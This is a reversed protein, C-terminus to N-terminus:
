KATMKLTANLIDQLTRSPDKGPQLFPMATGGDVSWRRSTPIPTTLWCTNNWTIWLALYWLVAMGGVATIRCWISGWLRSAAMMVALTFRSFSTQKPYWVLYIYVFFVAVFYEECFNLYCTLGPWLGESPWGQGTAWLLSPLSWHEWTNQVPVTSSVFQSDTQM